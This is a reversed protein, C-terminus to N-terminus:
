DRGKGRLCHGTFVLYVYELRETNYLTQSIEPHDRLVKRMESPPFVDRNLPLGEPQGSKLYDLIGDLDRIKEDALLRFQLKQLNKKRRCM